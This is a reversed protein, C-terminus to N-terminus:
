RGGHPLESSPLWINWFISCFSLSALTGPTRRSSGCLRWRGVELRTHTHTHLLFFHVGEWRRKLTVPMQAKQKIYRCKIRIPMLFLFPLFGFPVFCCISCPLSFSIMVKHSIFLKRFSLFCSCALSSFVTSSPGAWDVEPLPHYHTHVGIKKAARLPETSLIPM